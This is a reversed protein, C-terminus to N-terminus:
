PTFKLAMEIGSQKGPIPSQIQLTGNTQEVISKVISLGIGLGSGNNKLRHYRNTLLQIQEKPIIECENKIYIIKNQTLEIEIRTNLPAYQNANELLNTIAIGLADMDADIMVSESPLNLNFSRQPLRRKQDDVIIELLYNLSIKKFNLAVGSESKALQLLKTILKEMALLSERAKSLREKNKIEDTTSILLEIQSLSNAVPTRLEHATNESFFREAKIALNLRNILANVSEGIPTLEEPLLATDLPILNAGSIKQIDDSYKKLVKQSSKIGWYITIVIIPVVGIIPFLLFKIIGWLTSLRHTGPEAIHIFYMGDATSETYIRSASTNHFGTKLSSNIAIEPAGHSKLLIEGKENTVQYTLYEQHESIDEILIISSNKKYNEIEKISLPLIRQATEQLSSDFIESLEHEIVWIVGAAATVWLALTPITIFLLLRKKLSFKM